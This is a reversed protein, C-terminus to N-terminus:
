GRVFLAIKLFCWGQHRSLIDHGRPGQLSPTCWSRPLWAAYRWSLSTIVRSGQRAINAVTQWIWDAFRLLAAYTEPVLANFTFLPVALLLATPVSVVAIAIRQFASRTGGLM